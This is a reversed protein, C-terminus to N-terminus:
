LASKMMSGTTLISEATLVNEVSSLKKQFVVSTGSKQCTDKETSM